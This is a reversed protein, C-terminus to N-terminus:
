RTEEGVVLVFLYIFVAKTGDHSHLNMHKEGAHCGDVWGLVPLCLYVCACVHDCACV